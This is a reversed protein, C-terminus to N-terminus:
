ASQEEIWSYASDNSPVLFIMLALLIAVMGIMLASTEVLLLIVNIFAPGELLAFQVITKNQFVKALEEPSTKGKEASLKSTLLDGVLKPVILAAPIAMMGSGVAFFMFVSMFNTNLKSWDIALSIALVAGVVGIILAYCILRTSNITPQIQKIEESNLM